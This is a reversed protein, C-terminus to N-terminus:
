PTCKNRFQMKFIFNIAAKTQLAFPGRDGKSPELRLHFFHICFHPREVLYHKKKHSFLDLLKDFITKSQFLMQEATGKM